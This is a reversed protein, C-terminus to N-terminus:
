SRSIDSALLVEGIHVHLEERVAVVSSSISCQSIRKSLMTVLTWACEVLMQLCLPVNLVWQMDHTHTENGCPFPSEIPTTTTQESVM